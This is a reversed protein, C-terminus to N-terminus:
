MLTLRWIVQRLLLVIGWGWTKALAKYILRSFGIMHKICVELDICSMRIAGALMVTIQMKISTAKRAIHQVYTSADSSWPRHWFTGTLRLDWSWFPRGIEWGVISKDRTIFGAYDTARICDATGSPLMVCIWIFSQWLPQGTYVTLTPNTLYTFM